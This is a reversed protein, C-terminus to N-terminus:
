VSTIGICVATDPRRVSIMYMAYADLVNAFNLQDDWFRTTFPQANVTVLADRKSFVIMKFTIDTATCDFANSNNTTSLPHGTIAASPFTPVEWVEVGNLKSVRRQAYQGGNTTDYQVNLLKPHSLLASYTDVDCITILGDLPILRKRLVDVAKRQAQEIALANAEYDAQTAPTANLVVSVSVADFFAGSNKLHLPATWSRSKQLAIIHAQDFLQAFSSGNNQGIESLFDPGTWQDQYDLPNRIYLVTEVTITYKESTVKQPDLAVGSTRGKVVSKGLRDIRYTNSNGETSKQASLMQFISNYQFATDIENKYVELHIDVDSGAGGWGPRTSNGSWPTVAM